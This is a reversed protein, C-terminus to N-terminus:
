ERFNQMVQQLLAGSIKANGEMINDKLQKTSQLRTAYVKSKLYGCLFYEPARLDLCHSPSPTDGFQSISRGPPMGRPFTKSQRAVYVMAGNPQFCVNKVRQRMRQLEMIAQNYEEFFYPRIVDFREVIFLNRTSRCLIITM